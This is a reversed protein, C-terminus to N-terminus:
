FDITAINGIGLPVFFPPINMVFKGGIFKNYYCKIYLYFGQRLSECADALM